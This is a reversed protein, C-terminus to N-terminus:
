YDLDLAACLFSMLPAAAKFYETSMDVFGATVVDTNSLDNGGIFSKRRLDEILPHDAAIGRPVSKLNDASSLTWRERFAKNDRVKKWENPKDLIRQRIKGLAVPDPHWMGAGIFCEGPEIHVYFGPAHVDKGMEHRFQIGINTKYPPQGRSFRSDKYVRMLSGGVKQPTAVFHESIKALKPGMAVIYDLAVGQVDFEYRTKNELFWPRENNDALEELFKFTPAGFGEFKTKIPVPASKGPLKPARAITSLKIPKTPSTPKKAM